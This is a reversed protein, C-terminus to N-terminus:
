DYPKLIDYAIVYTLAAVEVFYPDAVDGHAILLVVIKVVLHVSVLGPLENKL